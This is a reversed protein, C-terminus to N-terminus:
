VISIRANLEEGIYVLYSANAAAASRFSAAVADFRAAANEDGAEILYLTTAFDTFDQVLRGFLLTM